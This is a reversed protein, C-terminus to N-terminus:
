FMKSSSEVERTASLNLRRFLKHALLGVAVGLLAGGLVDSPYHVGAAVRALSILASAAFFGWGWGRHRVYIVTSLAFFFIAHGSPFSFSPESLLATVAYEVSPRARHYFFRILEAFGYRAILAAGLGECVLAWKEARAREQLFVFVFFGAVVLYPFQEAFFVIAGDLAPSQGALLNLFFLLSLDITM